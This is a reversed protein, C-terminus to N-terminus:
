KTYSLGFGFPYLPGIPTDLYKSTYKDAPNPPRGTPLPNYYVPVQGVNRPVTVPLKASPNVDGFLVDALAPGAELRPFWSQVIAPVHAAAWSISLPRGSMVVLVVPKGTAVLSELLTEQDGPLDLSSRSAAEGSMERSEGLIAVIVGAQELPVS